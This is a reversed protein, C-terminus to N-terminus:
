SLSLFSCLLVLRFFHILFFLIVNQFTFLAPTNILQKDSNALSSIDDPIRKRHSQEWNENQSIGGSENRYIPQINTGMCSYLGPGIKVVPPTQWLFPRSQAVFSLTAQIENINTKQLFSCCYFIHLRYLGFDILSKWCRFHLYRRWGFTM